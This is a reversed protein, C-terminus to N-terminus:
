PHDILSFLHDAPKAMRKQGTPCLDLLACKQCAPNHFFCVQQGHMMLIEHNDYVQQANWEPPLQAELIAHAPGVPLTAPILGLRTAVRHHHSDVPLARRRL